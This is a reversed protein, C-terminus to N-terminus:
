CTGDTVLVNYKYGAMLGSFVNDNSMDSLDMSKLYDYAKELYIFNLNPNNSKNKLFTTIVTLNHGKAVLGNILARNRFCFYTKFILPSESKFFKVM